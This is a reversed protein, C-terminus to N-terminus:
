SCAEVFCVDFVTAWGGEYVERTEKAAAGLKAWGRHTLEVRTGDPIATFRVEVEQATAPDHGPHWTMAFRHPPEWLLVTGWLGRAGDKGVEFVDGGVRPEIGCTVADAQYISFMHLPWWSALKTTFVEFAEQPTRRVVVEKRLPELYPQISEVNSM